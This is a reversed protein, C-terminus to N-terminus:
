NIQNVGTIHSSKGNDPNSITKWDKYDDITILVEQGIDIEIYDYHWVFYRNGSWDQILIKYSMGDLGFKQLVKFSETTM